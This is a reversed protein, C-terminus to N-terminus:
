AYPILRSDTALNDSGTKWFNSFWFTAQRSVLALSSVRYGIIIEALFFLTNIVLLILIRAQRSLQMM